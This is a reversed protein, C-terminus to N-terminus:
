SDKERVREEELSYLARILKESFNGINDSLEQTLYLDTNHAKPCIEERARTRNIDEERM